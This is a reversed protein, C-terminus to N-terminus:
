VFSYYHTGNPNSSLIRRYNLVRLHKGRLKDQPSRIALEFLSSTIHTHTQTNHATVRNGCSLVVGSIAGTGCEYPPPPTHVSAYKLLEFLALVASCLAIHRYLPSCIFLKPSLPPPFRSSATNHLVEENHATPVKSKNIFYMICKLILVKCLLCM